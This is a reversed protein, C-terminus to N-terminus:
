YRGAGAGHLYGRITSPVRLLWDHLQGRLVGGLVGGGPDAMVGYSVLSRTPSEEYPTVHLFGWAARLDSPRQRDLRFALDRRAPDLTMRLHYRARVLGAAHRIAVIRDEGQRGVLRADQAAPLMHVYAATDELARWTVEAPQEIVQWASGGILHMGGRQREVPRTVLQGSSLRRREEASFGESTEAGTPQQAVGTGVLLASAVAALARATGKRM